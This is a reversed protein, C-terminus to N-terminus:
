KDGGKGFQSAFWEVGCSPSCVHANPHTNKGTTLAFWGPPPPHLLYDWDGRDDKRTFHTAGCAECTVQDGSEKM